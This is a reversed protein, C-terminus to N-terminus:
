RQRNSDSRTAEAPPHQLSFPPRRKEIERDRLESRRIKGTTTKPLSEVFEVERPYAHQGVQDRVLEQIQEILKESPALGPVLQVFAKIIAGRTPDPIGVVACEVVSQHQLIAREIEVPGVRYAATNILDDSRGRFWIYGDEDKLGMDGTILWDGIFASATQAPKNLYELFLVPDPRRVAIHGLEGASLIRGGDDVIEVRHGVAPKGMRGPRAAFWRECNTVLLNAETQGYCENVSAGLEAKGWDYIEPTLAEGGSMINRLKLDYKRRPNPEDRKMIRLATPPIFANTIRCREILAIAEEGSFKKTRHAVVPRGYYWATYLTDFLGGIWAWDAPTWFITDEGLDFNNYMEFATLHGILFRHCHVAGKPDGTSGSTYIIFAPETSSTEVPDLYSSAANVKQWFDKKDDGAGDGVVFIAELRSLGGIFGDLRDLVAVDAVIAKAESDRLRYELAASGFLVTLPVVVAGLKLAALHAIPLEVSQPLIVAVRDGRAVGCDALVNAFKDSLFDIAGFTYSNNAAEKVDILALRTAGDAHKSCVAAAINFREPICWRFEQCARQYSSFRELHPTIEQHQM